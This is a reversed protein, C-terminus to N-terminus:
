RGYGRRVISSSSPSSLIIERSPSPLSIVNDILIFGKSEEKILPPAILLQTPASILLLTPSASPSASSKLLDDYKYPRTGVFLNNEYICERKNTTVRLNYALEKIAITGKLVDKLWKEQM